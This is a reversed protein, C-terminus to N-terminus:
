QQEQIHLKHTLPNLAFSFDTAPLASPSPAPLPLPRGLHRQWCPVVSRTSSVQSQRGLEALVISSVQRQWCPVASM